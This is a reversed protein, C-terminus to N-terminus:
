KIIEFDQIGMPPPAIEGKDFSIVINGTDNIYVKLDKVMEKLEADTITYSWDPHEQIRQSIKLHM